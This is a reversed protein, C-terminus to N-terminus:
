GFSLGCQEWAPPTSPTPSPPVPAYTPMPPNVWDKRWEILYGANSVMKTRLVVMGAEKLEACRTILDSGYVTDQGSDALPPLQPQHNKLSM